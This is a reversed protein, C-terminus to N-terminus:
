KRVLRVNSVGQPTAIKAIYIGSTLSSGDIKVETSEPSLSIVQKGLIDFVNVANILTNNTKINWANQSPNPYVNFTMEELDSISLTAESVVISGLAAEETPNANLGRISFGYQVVLGAALEAGTASVTFEGSAPLDFVKTGNLTDSYGTAPNLAKIFFKAEYPDGNSDNGLTNSDVKGSFTLPLGNLTGIAPEVFTLCEVTKNGATGNSWFADGAIYLEFNPQLTINSSGITSKLLEVPKGFDTVYGGGDAPSNFVVVYGNWTATVDVTVNNETPCADCFTGGCDIGEEDGNQVSDDCTPEVTSAVIDDILYTGESGNNFDFFIILENYTGSGGFVLTVDEWTDPTTAFPKEQLAGTGGTGPQLKFLHSASGSSGVQKVRFSIQPTAAIDLSTTLPVYIHDYQGTFSGGVVVGTFEGVKQGSNDVDDIINFTGGDDVSAIINSDNADEFTIPLDQSFGFFATLFFLLLTIKKM